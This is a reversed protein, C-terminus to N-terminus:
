LIGYLAVIHNRPIGVDLNSLMLIRNRSFKLRENEADFTRKQNPSEDCKLLSSKSLVDIM